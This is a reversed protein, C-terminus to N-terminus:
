FLARNDKEPKIVNGWCGLVKFSSCRKVWVVNMM